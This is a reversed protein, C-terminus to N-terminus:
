HVVQVCSMRGLYQSTSTITCQIGEEGKNERERKERRGREKGERRGRERERGGGWGEKTERERERGPGREM